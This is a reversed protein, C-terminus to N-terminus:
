SARVAARSCRRSHCTAPLCRGQVESALNVQPAQGPTGHHHSGLLGALFPAGSAASINGTVIGTAGNAVTVVYLAAFGADAAPTTQTGTTAPTGAKVQLNVRQQRVTYQPTSSNSPGSYPQSPNAANYYPLVVSGGDSEQFAAEILYNVSNGTGSPAPCSINTSGEYNIGIKMLPNTDAGLSGYASSDITELAFIAGQGINVTLGSGPTCALGVVTTGTGLIAQTLYGLAIMTWRAQDLVDTDQPAEGPYVVVRDM